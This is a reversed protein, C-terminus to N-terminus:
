VTFNGRKKAPKEFILEKKYKGVNQKSAAYARLETFSRTGAKNWSYPILTTNKGWDYIFSYIVSLYFSEKREESPTDFSYGYNQIITNLNTLFQENVM